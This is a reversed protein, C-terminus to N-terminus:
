KNEVDYVCLVILNVNNQDTTGLFEDSIFLLISWAEEM